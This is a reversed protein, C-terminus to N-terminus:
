FWHFDGQKDLVLPGVMPVDFDSLQSAILDFMESTRVSISNFVM